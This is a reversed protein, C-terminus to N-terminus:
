VKKWDFDPAEVTEGDPYQVLWWINANGVNKVITGVINKYKDYAIWGKNNLKVKDGLKHKAEWTEKAM